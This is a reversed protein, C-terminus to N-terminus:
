QSKREIEGEGSVGMDRFLREGISQLLHFLGDAIDPQDRSTKTKETLIQGADARGCACM